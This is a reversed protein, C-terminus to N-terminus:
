FGVLILDFQGTTPAVNFKVSVTNDDTTSVQTLGLLGTGTDHLFPIIKRTGLSHTISQTLATGLTVTYVRPINKGGATVLNPLDNSGTVNKSADLQLVTLATLGSLNLTNSFTNTGTWSQNGGFLDTWTPAASISGNGTQTFFRIGNATSGALRTGAGSTGGYIMDGLTTMPSLANFGAGATAQGTGGHAIALQGSFDA